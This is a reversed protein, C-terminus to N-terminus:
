QLRQEVAEAVLRPQADDEEREVFASVRTLQRRQGAMIRAQLEAGGPPEVVAGFAHAAEALHSRLSRAEVVSDSEVIVRAGEQRDGRAVVDRPPDVAR